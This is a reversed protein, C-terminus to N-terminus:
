DDYIIVFKPNECLYKKYMKSIELNFIFNFITLSISSNNINKM